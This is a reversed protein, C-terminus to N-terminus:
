ITEYLPRTVNNGYTNGIENIIIEAKDKGMYLSIFTMM